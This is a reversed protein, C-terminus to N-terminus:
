AATITIEGDLTKGQLDDQAKNTDNFEVLVYYYADKSVSDIQIIDRDVLIISESEPINKKSDKVLTAGKNTLATALDDCEEYLKTNKDDESITGTKKTCHLPNEKEFTIENDSKYVSIELADAGFTNTTVSYALRIAATTEADGQATVKITALEKHGPYVDEATFKGANSDATAFTLTNAVKSSTIDTKGNDGEQSFNDTVTATFYAFTAGVVAVLLTAIAIVTLLVMNKKEM